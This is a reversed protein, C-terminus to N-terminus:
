SFSACNLLQMKDTYYTNRSTDTLRMAMLNSGKEADCLM